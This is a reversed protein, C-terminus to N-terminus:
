PRKEGNAVGKNFLIKGYATAQELLTENDMDDLFLEFGNDFGDDDGVYEKAFEDCLYEEFTFFSKGYEYGMTRDKPYNYCGSEEYRDVVSNGSSM